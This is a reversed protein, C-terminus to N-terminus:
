SATVGSSVEPGYLGIVHQLFATQVRGPLGEIQERTPSGACLAVVLDTARAWQKESLDYQETLAVETDDGRAKREARVDDSLELLGRQFQKLEEDPPEPITGHADVHPRFDWTEAPVAEAATFSV